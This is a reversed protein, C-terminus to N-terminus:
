GREGESVMVTAKVEDELVQWEIEMQEVLGVKTLEGVEILERAEYYFEWASQAELGLALRM